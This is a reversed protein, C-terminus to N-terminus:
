NPDKELIKPQESFFKPYNQILKFIDPTTDDASEYSEILQKIPERAKTTKETYSRRNNNRKPERNYSQNETFNTYRVFKKDAM